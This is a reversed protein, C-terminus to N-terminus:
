KFLKRILKNTLKRNIGIITSCNPYLEIQIYPFYCFFFYKFEYMIARDM